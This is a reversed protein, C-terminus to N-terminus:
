EKRYLIKKNRLLRNWEESDIKMFTIISNKYNSSDQGTLFRVILKFKEGAVEIEKLVLVSNPKNAEIIYDPSRVIESLYSSYREYDDPHRLRIHEIQKQTIIVEDTLIEDTACQYITKDIKGIYHLGQKEFSKIKNINDYDSINNLIKESRKNKTHRQEYEDLWKDWDDVVPNFHCRCWPHMPPFNAGQQRQSFKFRRGSLASCVSCVKGDGATLYEYEEFDEEFVKAQAENMVYTGETYILRYADNKSVNIFRSRVQQTLREYSDGRAFGQSIDNNLYEALKDANQWIRQSYDKSGTWATNVFNKIISENETLGVVKAAAKSNTFYLKSLHEQLQANTIAGIEYQHLLVSEKLGELRNLKYVSERVPMLDAYQPYKKAFNDMREILLKIDDASLQEFLRAYEIVNDRGYKQYYAAIEKDLKAAEREYAKLLRKKLAAEDKELSSDLQDQRRQWYSSM